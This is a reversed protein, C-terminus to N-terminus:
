CAGARSGDAQHIERSVTRKPTPVRIVRDADDIHYEMMVERIGEIPLGAFDFTIRVDDWSDRFWRQADVVAALHKRHASPGYGTVGVADLVARAAALRWVLEYENKPSDAHRFAYKVVDPVLSCGLVDDQVNSDANSKKGM